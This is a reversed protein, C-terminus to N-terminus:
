EVLSQEVSHTPRTLQPLLGARYQDIVEQVTRNEEVKFMDVFNDRL